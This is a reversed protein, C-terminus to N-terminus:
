RPDIPTNIPSLAYRGRNTSGGGRGGVSRVHLHTETDTTRSRKLSFFGYMCKRRPWMAVCRGRQRGAQPCSLLVPLSCRISATQHQPATHPSVPLCKVCVHRHCARTYSSATFSRSSLQCSEASLGQLARVRNLDGVRRCVRAPAFSQLCHAIHICGPCHRGVVSRLRPRRGGGRLASECLARSPRYRGSSRRASLTPASPAGMSSSATCSARVHSPARRPRSAFTCGCRM